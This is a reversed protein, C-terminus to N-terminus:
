KTIRIELIYWLYIPPIFHIFVNKMLLMFLQFINLPFRWPRLLNAHFNLHCYIFSMQTLSHQFYYVMLYFKTMSTAHLVLYHPDGNNLVRWHSSVFSMICERIIGAILARGFSSHRWSTPITKNYWCQDTAIKGNFIIYIM